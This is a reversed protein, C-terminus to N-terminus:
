DNRLWARVIAGIAEPQHYPSMHGAEDVAYFSLQDNGKWFGGEKVNWGDADSTLEGDKYHWTEYGLERYNDQGKWRQQNLMRMQGPTNIIIDNNGNIFLVRIDTEDLIWTLERTVPIHINQAIDWRENTDFDILYFPFRDFGLREQVWRRNLFKWEPGHDM